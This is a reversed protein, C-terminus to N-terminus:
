FDKFIDEYLNKDSEEIQIDAQKDFNSTDSISKIPPIYPAPILKHYLSAWNIGAFYPMTKIVAPDTLRDTMHKSLLKTIIDRSPANIEPKPFVVKAHIIRRLLQLMNGTRFPTKGHILEFMLIGLTWWDVSYSYARGHVIEPALYEPTGCMTKTTSGDIKKSLGLDAIKLYGTRDIIVNEPKLDRYVVGMYHLYEFALVIQASYFIVHPEEYIQIRKLRTYFDGGPIYEIVLFLNANDKFHSIYKIFFPNEIAKLVLRENKVHQPGHNKVVVKKTMIKVAVYANPDDLKLKRYRAFIVNGFKGRGLVRILEFDALRTTTENENPKENWRREFHVKADKLNFKHNDSAASALRQVATTRFPALYSKLWQKM